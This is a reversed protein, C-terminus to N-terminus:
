TSPPTSPPYSGMALVAGTRANMAVFASPRGSARLAAEGTAQLAADLSAASTPGPAPRGTASSVRRGASPMSRYRLEGPAGRLYRDYAHEVGSQGIM